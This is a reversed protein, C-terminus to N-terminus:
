NEGPLNVIAFDVIMSDIIVFDVATFDVVTLDVITNYMVEFAIDFLIINFFEFIKM